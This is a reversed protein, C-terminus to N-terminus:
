SMYKMTDLRSNAARRYQIDSWSFLARSLHILHCSTSGLAYLATGLDLWGLSPLFVCQLRRLNDMKFMICVSLPVSVYPVWCAYLRVCAMWTGDIKLSRLCEADNFPLSHFCSIWIMGSLVFQSGLFSTYETDNYVVMPWLNCWAAWETRSYQLWNVLHCKWNRM